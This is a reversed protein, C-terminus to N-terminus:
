ITSIQQCGAGERMSTEIKLFTKSINPNFTPNWLESGGWREVKEFNISIPPHRSNKALFPPTLCFPPRPKDLFPTPIAMNYQPKEPSEEHHLMSFFREKTLLFTSSKYYM